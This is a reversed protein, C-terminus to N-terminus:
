HAGGHPKSGHRRPHLIPKSVQAPVPAKQAAQQAVPALKVGPPMGGKGRRALAPDAALMSMLALGVLMGHLLGHGVPGAVRAARHAVKTHNM